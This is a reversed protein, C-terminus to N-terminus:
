QLGLLGLLALGITAIPAVGYFREGDTFQNALVLLIVFGILVALWTIARIEALSSM